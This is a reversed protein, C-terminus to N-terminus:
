KIEFHKFRLCSQCLVSNRPTEHKCNDCCIIKDKMIKNDKLDEFVREEMTEGLTVSLANGGSITNGVIRCAEAMDKSIFALENGAKKKSAYAEDYEKKFEYALNVARKREDVLLQIVEKLTFIQAKRVKEHYFHRFVVIGVAMFFSSRLM